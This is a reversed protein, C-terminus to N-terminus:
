ALCKKYEGKLNTNSVGFKNPLTNFFQVGGPGGWNPRIDLVQKRSDVSVLVRKKSDLLLHKIPELIPQFKSISLTKGRGFRSSASFALMLGIINVNEEKKILEM